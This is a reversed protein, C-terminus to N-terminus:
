IAFAICTVGITIMLAASIRLLPAAERFLFAAIVVGVVVSFQRLAVIYSTNFSLQYAWLVLSYASFLLLGMLAPKKWTGLEGILNTPQHFIMLILWFSIFCFCMEFVQYRVASWLGAQRYNAALNDLITYGVTAMATVMIWLTTKNWYIRPSYDHLSRLPSLICGLSVLGIGLWGIPQPAHGFLIDAIAILLVPLARAIPYVVTFDGSQYGQTLGWMYFGQFTGAFIIYLWVKPFISPGTFEAILAPIIGIASILLPVRLFIDQDRLQRALLNWGAHFFASLLTLGVPLISM